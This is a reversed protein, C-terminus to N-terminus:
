EFRVMATESLFYERALETKGVDTPCTFLFSAMPRHPIRLAVSALKTTSCIAKVAAEQGIINKKLIEIEELKLLQQSETRSLDKLPMRTRSSIMRQIDSKTLSVDRDPM